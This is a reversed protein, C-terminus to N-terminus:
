LDRGSVFPLGTIPMRSACVDGSVAGAAVKVRRPKGRGPRKGLPRHEPGGDLETLEGGPRIGDSFIVSKNETRTLSSGEVSSDSRKLVGVPVMVSPVHSSGSASVQESVPM